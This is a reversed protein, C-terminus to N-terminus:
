RAVAGERALLARKIGLMVEREGWGGGGYGGLSGDAAIVRHCPIALGVPNRSVAGGVARAAGPSGAMRAVEGYSATAGPPISRVAALVRRDWAPRDGLDLPIADFAFADGAFWADLAQEAAVLHHAARPNAAAAGPDKADAVSGGLRRALRDRFGADLSLVDLAALGRETAALGIPGWPGAVRTALAIPAVPRRTPDDVVVAYDSAPEYGPPPPVLSPPLALM